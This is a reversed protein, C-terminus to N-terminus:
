SLQECNGSDNAQLSKTMGLCRHTDLWQSAIGVAAGVQDTLGAKTNV